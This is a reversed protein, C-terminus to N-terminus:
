RATKDFRTIWCAGVIITWASAYAWLLTAIISSLAGRFVSAHWTYPLIQTFTFWVGMWGLTALFAGQRLVTRQIRWPASIQYSLRFAWYLIIFLLVNSGGTWLVLTVKSILGLHSLGRSIAPSVVLLLSVLVFTTAWLALFMLSRLWFRWTTKTQEETSFIFHLTRALTDMFSATTWLALFFSATQLGGATGRKVSAIISAPTIQTDPPLLTMLAATIPQTLDIHFCQHMLTMAVVLFPVISLIFCYALAAAFSGLLEIKNELRPGLLWRKM